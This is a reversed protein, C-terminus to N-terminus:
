GADRLWRAFRSELEPLTMGMHAKLSEHISKGAGYAKLFGATKKPFATVLYEALAYAVLSDDATLAHMEKGFLVSLDPRKEAEYLKAALRIWNVKKFHQGREQDERTKQDKAYTGKRISKALRTGGHHYSLWLGFGEFAWGRKETLGFRHRLHLGFVSRVVVDRRWLAPKTWTM